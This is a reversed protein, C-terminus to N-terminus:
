GRGEGWEAPREESRDLIDLLCSGTHHAHFRHRELAVLAEDARPWSSFRLVIRRDGIRHHAYVTQGYNHSTAAHAVQRVERVFSEYSRRSMPEETRWARWQGFAQSFEERDDLGLVRWDWGADAIAAYLRKTIPWVESRDVVETVPEPHIRHSVASTVLGRVLQAAAEDQAKTPDQGEARARRWVEGMTYVHGYKIFRGSEDVPLFWHSGPGVERQRPHLSVRQATM